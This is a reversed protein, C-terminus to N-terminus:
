LLLFFDSVTGNFFTGKRYRHNQVSRQVEIMNKHWRASVYSVCIPIMYGNDEETEVDCKGNRSLFKQLSTNTEINTITWWIKALNHGNKPNLKKKKQQTLINTEAWYSKCSHM